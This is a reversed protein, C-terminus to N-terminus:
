CIRPPPSPPSFAFSHFPEIFRIFQNDMSESLYTNWSFNEQFYLSHYFSLLWVQKIKKQTNNGSVDKVLEALQRNLKTEKHDPWCWYFVSDATAQKDVIDYMHNNYEFEKAHKWALKSHTEAQAFKLLVLEAKDIGQIMQWKVESKVLSKQHQLWVYTIMAPAILVFLLLIGIYKRKLGAHKHRAFIAYFASFDPMIKNTISEFADSLYYITITWFCM